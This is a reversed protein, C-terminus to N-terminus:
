NIATLLVFRGDDSETLKFDDRKQLFENSKELKSYSESSLLYYDASSLLLEEPLNDPDFEIQFNSRDLNSDYVINFSVLIEDINKMIPLPGKSVAQIDVFILTDGEPEIESKFSNLPKMTEYYEIFNHQDLLKPGAYGLLSLLVLLLSVNRLWIKDSWLSVVIFFLFLCAWLVINIPSFSMKMIDLQKLVAFVLSGILLLRDLKTKWLSADLSSASLLVLVGLVPFAFRPEWGWKGNISLDLLLIFLLPVAWVILKNIPLKKLLKIGSLLYLLFLGPMWSKYFNWTWGGSIYVRGESANTAFYTEMFHKIESIRFGFFPDKLFIAQLLAMVVVGVLLGLAVWLLRKVWDVFNFKNKSFAFGIALVAVVLVTEKTKFGLFLFCGFLVLYIVKQHDAKASLLYIFVMLILMLMASVDVYPIGAVEAMIPQSIFLLVAFVGTMRSNQPVLLASSLYILLSAFAISFSWFLQFGNLPNDALSIFLKQLFVHFYRNLIFSDKIGNEGVHFYWSVDSSNPGGKVFHYLLFWILFFFVTVLLAELYKTKKTNPSSAQVISSKEVLTQENKM